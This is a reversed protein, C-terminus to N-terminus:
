KIKKVGFILLFAKLTFGKRAAFFKAASLRSFSLTKSIIEQQPDNKRYFGYTM